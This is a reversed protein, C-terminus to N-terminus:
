FLDDFKGNADAVEDDEEEDEFMPELIEIVDAMDVEDTSRAGMGRCVVVGTNPLTYQIFGSKATRAKGTGKYYRLQMGPKLVEEMFTAVTERAEMLTEVAQTLRQNQEANNM